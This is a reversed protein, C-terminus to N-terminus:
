QQNGVVDFFSKKLLVYIEPSVLVPEALGIKIIPALLYIIEKISKKFSITSDAISFLVADDGKNVRKVNAKIIKELHKNYKIYIEKYFPNEINFDNKKALNYEYIITKNPYKYFFYENFQLYLDKNIRPQTYYCGIHNCLLDYYIAHNFSSLSCGIRKIVMEVPFSYNGAIFDSYFEASLKFLIDKRNSISEMIM